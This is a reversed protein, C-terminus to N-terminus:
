GLSRRELCGRIPRGLGDRDKGGKDTCPEECVGSGQGAADKVYVLVKALLTENDAIEGMARYIEANLQLATM